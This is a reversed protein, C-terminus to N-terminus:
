STGGETRHQKVIEWGALINVRRVSAEDFRAIIHKLENYRNALTVIEAERADLASVPGKEFEAYIPALRAFTAELETRYPAIDTIVKDRGDETITIRSM